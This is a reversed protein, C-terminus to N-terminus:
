AARGSRGAVAVGVAVGALLALTGVWFARQPSHPRLGLCYGVFDECNWQLFSYNSGLAGTARAVVEAVPIRPQLGRHFVRRGRALDCLREAVAKGRLRSNHALIPEGDFDFAIVVGVHHGWPTDIGVPDGLNFGAPM